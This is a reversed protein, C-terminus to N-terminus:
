PLKKIALEEPESLVGIRVGSESALDNQNPTSANKSIMQKYSIFYNLLRVAEENEFVTVIEKM